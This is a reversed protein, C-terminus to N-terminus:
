KDEKFAERLISQMLLESDIRSQEINKELEDCLSMLREIKNAILEQMRLSPLPFILNSVATSGINGQNATGTETEFISDLITNTKLFISILKPNINSFLRLCGVRQNIYLKRDSIYDKNILCNYFYDRKGRTGTMTFLIDNELVRYRETEEAIENPIFVPNVDLLLKDNKINGLRLIQNESVNLYSDSKYAYGGLFQAIEGIRVWQWGEQLEYPIEDESIPTLPKEKKIKGEKILRDKEEAIKKLLVSAPEDYPDHSVLEGRIAERLISKRLKDIMISQKKNEEIVNIYKDEFENYWNMFKDQQSLSMDPIEIMHPVDSAKLYKRNTTGTSLTNIYQYFFPLKFLLQIFQPNAKEIDISALAMNTSALSENHEEITVGFAGNKTDVKCWM